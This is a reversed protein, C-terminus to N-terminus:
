SFFDAIEEASVGSSEAINDIDSKGTLPNLEFANPKLKQSNAQRELDIALSMDVVFELKTKGGIKEEFLDEIIKIYEPKEIQKFHFNSNFKVVVGRESKEIKTPQLTRKVLPLKIDEIVSKWINEIETDSYQNIDISNKTDASSKISEDIMEEKKAKRTLSVESQFIKEIDGKITIEDTDHNEKSKATQAKVEPKKIPENIVETNEYQQHSNKTQRFEDKVSVKPFEIPTPMNVNIGAFHNATKVVFIELSIEPLSSDKFLTWISQWSELLFIVRSQEATDEEIVSKELKNKFINIIDQNIQKAGYGNKTIQNVVEMSGVTNGTIIRDILDVLVEDPTVGLVQSIELSSKLGSAAVQDLLSIADRMGGNAKKVVINLVDDDLKLDESKSIFRLRELIFEDSIKKFDFRQCRSIITDPIKHVETTALIFYVNKPPEELTKLLANFAENTLMHVEDIIYVKNKAKYPAFQVSDRLERIEDIGRNSAADLELVDVLSGNNIDSCIDCTNCPENNNTDFNLCNLSKAILRASTTKGTGRPGCFIYAHAIKNLEIGKQLTIKIHNQGYLDNFQQPRYKLYLSM